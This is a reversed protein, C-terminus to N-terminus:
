QVVSLVVVAPRHFLSGAESIILAGPFWGHLTQFEVRKTGSPVDFVLAVENVGGPEVFDTLSAHTGSLRKLALEGRPSIEHLHGQEDLVAGRTDTERQRRRMAKSLVRAHVIVFDGDATDSGITHTRHASDVAICWDDWCHSTGAAIVQTPQALSFVTLVGAYVATAM